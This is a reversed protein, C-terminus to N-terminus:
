KEGTLITTYIRNGNDWACLITSKDIRLLKPYTGGSGTEVSKGDPKWCYVNGTNVFAVYYSGTIGTITCHSGRNVLEEKQRPETVYTIGERAWVTLIANDNNIV